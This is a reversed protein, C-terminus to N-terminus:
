CETSIVSSYKENCVATGAGHSHTPIYSGWFMKVWYLGFFLALLRWPKCTFSLASLSTEECWCSSPFLYVSVRIMAEKGSIKFTLSPQHLCVWELVKRLRTTHHTPRPTVPMSHSTKSSLMCVNRVDERSAAPTYSKCNKCKVSVALM